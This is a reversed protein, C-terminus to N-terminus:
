YLMNEKLASPGHEDNQGSHGGGWYVLATSTMKDQTGGWYVLATKMM